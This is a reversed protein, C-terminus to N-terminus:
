KTVGVIANRTDIFKFNGKNDRAINSTKTVPYYGFERLLKLRKKRSYRAKKIKYSM